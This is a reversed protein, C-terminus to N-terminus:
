DGIIVVFFDMKCVIFLSSCWLHLVVIHLDHSVGECVISDEFLM